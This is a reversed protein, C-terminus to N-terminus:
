EEEIQALLQRREKPFKRITFLLGGISGVIGICGAIVTLLGRTIEMKYGDGM